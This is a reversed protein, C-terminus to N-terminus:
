RNYYKINRQRQGKNDITRLTWNGAADYEEIYTIVSPQQQFENKKSIPTSTLQVGTPLYEYKDTRILDFDANYVEVGTLWGEMDYLYHINTDKGCAADTLVGSEYKLAKLMEGSQSLHQERCTEGGNEYEYVIREKLEGSDQSKNQTVIIQELKPSNDFNSYFYHWQTTVGTEVCYTRMELKCNNLYTTVTREHLGGHNKVLERSKIFGEHSYETRCYYLTDSVQKLVHTTVISDKQEENKRVGRVNEGKKRITDLVVSDQLKTVIDFEEVTRVPGRLGDLQRDNPITQAVSPFSVSMLCLSLLLGCIKTGRLNPGISCIKMFIEGICMNSINYKNIVEDEERSEYNIEM